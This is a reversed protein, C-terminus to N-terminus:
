VEKKEESKKSEKEKKKIEDKKGKDYTESGSKPKAESKEQKKGEDKTQKSKDKSKDEKKKPVPKEDDDDDDEEDEDIEKKNKVDKSKEQKKNDHGDAKKGNEKASGKQCAKTVFKKCQEETPGNQDDDEDDDGEASSGKRLQYCEGGLSKVPVIATHSFLFCDGKDDKLKGIHFGSCGKKKTCEKCCDSLSRSGKVLIPWEGNDWGQGRCGGPGLLPCDNTKASSSLQVYFLLLASVVLLIHRMGCKSRFTQPSSFNYKMSFSLSILKSILNGKWYINIPVLCLHKHQTKCGNLIFLPSGM